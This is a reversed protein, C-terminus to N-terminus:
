PAVLASLPVISVECDEKGVAYTVYLNGDAECAWPYSLQPRKSHTPWRPTCDGQRLMWIRCFRTQGPRSVALVLHERNGRNCVLYHQGTSLTGAIARSEAMPFNSEVVPSWSRGKDRSISMLAIDKYPNRMLAVVEGPDRGAMDTWVTTEIAYPVKDKPQLAYDFPIREVKWATVDDKDVVAAAPGCGPYPSDDGGLIWGGGPLPKPNDLAWFNRAVVGRPQWKHTDEDYLFAETDIRMPGGGHAPIFRVPFCWLKGAHSLITGHGYSNTATADGAVIEPASWTRGGDDSWRGRVLEADPDEDRKSNTWCAFLRGRHAAICPGSLFQYEGQVATHNRVRVAERLVPMDNRHPLVAGDDWLVGAQTPHSQGVPPLGACGALALILCSAIVHCSRM